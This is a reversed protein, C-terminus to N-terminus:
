HWSDGEDLPIDFAGRWQAWSGGLPVPEINVAEIYTPLKSAEAYHGIGTVICRKKWIERLREEPIRGVVCEVERGGATLIVMAKDVLGRGELTVVKGDLSINAVGSFPQIRGLSLRKIDNLVTAVNKALTKDIRVAVDDNAGRKIEGKAFTKGVGGTVESIYSVFRLPLARAEPRNHYIAVVGRQFYDFGSHVDGAPSSLQERVAATATNKELKDILFKHCRSGNAQFDAAALAQMFKFFKRAFVEGDVDENFAPLGHITLTLTDNEM